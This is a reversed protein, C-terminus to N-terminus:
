NFTIPSHPQSIQESLFGNGVDLSKLNLLGSIEKTDYDLQILLQHSEVIVQEEDEEAVMVIHGETTRYLTQGKIISANFVILLLIFLKIKM